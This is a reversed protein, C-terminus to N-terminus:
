DAEGREGCACAVAECSLPSADECCVGPGQSPGGGEEGTSGYVGYASVVMSTEEGREGCAGDGSALGGDWGDRATM